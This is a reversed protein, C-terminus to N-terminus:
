ELTLLFLSTPLRLIFGHERGDGQESNGTVSITNPSGTLDRFTM